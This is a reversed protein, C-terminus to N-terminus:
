LNRVIYILGNLSFHIAQERVAARDGTFVYHAVECAFQQGIWAFYVTGVPKTPDGGGPGAIGTIALAIHAHSNNLAGEAMEKVTAESVAGFSALTTSKVGLLEQKAQNSYTVYGREFWASSGPIATLAQAIGGGTCSEATVLMFNHKLLSDGVQSALRNIDNNIFM